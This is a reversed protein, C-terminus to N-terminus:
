PIFYCYLCSHITIEFFEKRSKCGRLSSLSMESTRQRLLDQVNQLFLYIVWWRRHQVAARRSCWGCFNIGPGEKKQSWGQGSVGLSRPGSPPPSTPSPVRARHRPPRGPEGRAASTPRTGWRSRARSSGHAGAVHGERARVWPSHIAGAGFGFLWWCFRNERARTSKESAMIVGWIMQLQWMRFHKLDQSQLYAYPVAVSLFEFEHASNNELVQWHWSSICWM